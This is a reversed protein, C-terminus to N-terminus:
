VKRGAFLSSFVGRELEMKYDRMLDIFKAFCPKYEFDSNAKEISFLYSDAKNKMDERYIVRSKNNEDKAFIEACVEAQELLTTTRGSTINYVGCARASKAAKYYAQAVDKVYVIDRALDGYVEIDEGNKAKDIFVQLGSKIIKGNRMLYGHPGVGYVPPLRFWVNRMQYQQNYYEAIDSAANKSIIYAAHDGSMHFSKLEDDLMPPDVRLKKSFDGFSITNILRKIGNKRCYELAYCTGLVNVKIYKDTNDDKILDASESAPLASSILIVAEVNKRPLMEFDTKNTLDLNIYQIDNKEYYDRFKDNRGTVIVTEGHEKFYTATYVGIFSSAGIIVFM